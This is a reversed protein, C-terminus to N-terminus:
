IDVNSVDLKGSMLENLLRDRFEALLRNQEENLFYIMTHWQNLNTIMAPSVWEKSPNELKMEKSKTVRIYDQMQLQIDIGLLDKITKNIGELAKNGQKLLDIKDLLGYERAWTENVTLKCANQQRIVRELDTVIDIYERYRKNEFRLDLYKNPSFNFDQLELNSVTKSFKEINSKNDISEVIRKINEYSYVNIEKKYIRNAHSKEGFQGRQERIEKEFNIDSCNVFSIEKSKECLLITTGIGTSEFMKEPNRVVAKILNNDVLYKRAEKEDNSTNVANPLIFACKGKVRELMKFVFAYNLNKLKVPNTLSGKLNFPPNSIGSSFKPYNFILQSEVESFKNSSTLKYIGIIEDTLANKNLVYGTINRIKLNFILLPIIRTDLEECVFKLNKNSYWKQITLAGSGCCLDYVWEENDSKTLESVLKGLTKPTFDQKKDERDSAYYQWIKQIYDTELDGNIMECFLQCNENTIKEFSFDKIDGFNDTFKEVLEKLEM